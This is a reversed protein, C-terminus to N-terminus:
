DRADLAYGGDIRELVDIAAFVDDGVFSAEFVAPAGATLAAQTAACKQAIAWPEEDVLIGRPVTTAMPPLWAAVVVRGVPELSGLGEQAGACLVASVDQLLDPNAPRTPM